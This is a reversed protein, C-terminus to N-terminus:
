KATNKDFEPPGFVLIRDPSVNETVKGVRGEVLNSAIGHCHESDRVLSAPRSVPALTLDMESQMKRRWWRAEGVFGIDAPQVGAVPQVDGGEPAV